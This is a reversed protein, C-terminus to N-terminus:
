PHCRGCPSYGMAIVDERTGTYNKKNKESMQDVSSCDPMHFKHTNTNLIYDMDAPASISDADEGEENLAPSLTESSISEPASIRNEGPIAKGSESCSIGTLMIAIVLALIWATKGAYMHNGKRRMAAGRRQMEDTERDV